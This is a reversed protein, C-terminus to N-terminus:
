SACDSQFLEKTSIKLLQLIQKKLWTKFNKEWLLCYQVLISYSASQMHPVKHTYIFVKAIDKTSTNPFISFATQLTTSCSQLHPELSLTGAKYACLGSNLGGIRGFFFLFFSFITICFLHTWLMECINKTTVLEVLFMWGVYL